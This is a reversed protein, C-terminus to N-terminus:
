VSKFNYIPKLHKHITVFENLSSVFEESTDYTHPSTLAGAEASDKCPYDIHIGKMNIKADEWHKVERIERNSITRRASGPASMLSLPNGKGYCLLVGEKPSLAIVSKKGEKASIAGVRTIHDEISRGAHITDVQNDFTDALSIGLKQKIEICIALRNGLAFSQCLEVDHFYADASDGTLFPFHKPTDVGYFPTANTYFNQLKEEADEESMGKDFLLEEKLALAEADMDTKGACTEKALNNYFQYVVNSLTESDSHVVLYKMGHFDTDVEIFHGEGMSLKCMAHDICSLDHDSLYRYCRLRKVDELREQYYPTERLVVGYPIHEKIIHDLKNLNINNHGLETCRIGCGINKGLLGPIAIDGTDIAFGTLYSDGYSHLNPLLAARFNSYLPYRFIKSARKLARDDTQTVYFQFNKEFDM